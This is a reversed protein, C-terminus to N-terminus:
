NGPSEQDAQAAEAAPVGPSNATPPAGPPNATFPETNEPQDALAFDKLWKPESMIGCARTQHDPTTDPQTAMKTIKQIKTVVEGMEERVATRLQEIFHESQNDQPVAPAVPPVAQVAHAM